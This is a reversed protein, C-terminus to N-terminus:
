RTVDPIILRPHIRHIFLTKHMVWVAVTGSEKVFILVHRRTRRTPARRCCAFRGDPRDFRAVFIRYRATSTCASTPATGCPAAICGCDLRSIIHRALTRQPKAHAHRQNTRWPFGSADPAGGFEGFAPAEKPTAVVAALTAASAITARLFAARDGSALEPPGESRMM